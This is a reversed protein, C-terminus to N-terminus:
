GIQKMIVPVLVSAAREAIQRKETDSIKVGDESEPAKADRIAAIIAPIKRVIAIALSWGNIQKM